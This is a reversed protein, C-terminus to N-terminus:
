SFCVAGASRAVGMIKICEDMFSTRTRIHLPLHQAVIEMTYVAAGAVEHLAAQPTCFAVTNEIQRLMAEQIEPAEAPACLLTFTHPLSSTLQYTHQARGVRGVSVGFQVGSSSATLPALAKRIIGKVAKKVSRLFKGEPASVLHISVWWVHHHTLSTAHLVTGAHSPLAGADLAPEDSAAGNRVARLAVISALWREEHKCGSTQDVLQKVGETIDKFQGQCETFPCRMYVFLRWVRHKSHAPGDPAKRSSTSREMHAVRGNFLFLLLRRWKTAISQMQYSDLITQARQM